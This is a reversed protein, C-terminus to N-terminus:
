VSKMLTCCTCQFMKFHFEPDINLFPILSLNLQFLPVSYDLIRLFLQCIKQGVESM